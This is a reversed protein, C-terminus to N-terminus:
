DKAAPTAPPLSSEFPFTLANPDKMEILELLLAPVSEPATQRREDILAEISRPLGPIWGSL